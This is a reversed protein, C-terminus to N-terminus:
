SLSFRSASSRHDRANDAITLPLGAKTNSSAAARPCPRQRHGSRRDAAPSGALMTGSCHLTSSCGLNLAALNPPVKTQGSSGHRGAGHRRNISKQAQQGEEAVQKLCLDSPKSPSDQVRPSPAGATLVTRSNIASGRLFHECRMSRALGIIRAWCNDAKIPRIPRIRQGSADDHQSHRRSAVRLLSAGSHRLNRSPEGVANGFGRAHQRDLSARKIAVRLQAANGNALEAPATDDEGIIEGSIQPFKRYESNAGM